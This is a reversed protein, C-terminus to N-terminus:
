KGFVERSDIPDVHNEDLEYETIPRDITRKYVSPNINELEMKIGVSILKKRRIEASERSFFKRLLCNM